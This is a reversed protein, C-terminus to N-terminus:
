AAPPATALCTAPTTMARGTSPWSRATADTEVRYRDWTEDDLYRM